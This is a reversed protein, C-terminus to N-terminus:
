RCHVPRMDPEDELQQLRKLVGARAPSQPFRTLFGALEFEVSDQGNCACTGLEVVEELDKISQDTYATYSLPFKRRFTLWDLYLDQIVDESFRVCPAIRSTLRLYSPVLDDGWSRRYLAFFARDAAHGHAVALRDLFEPDPQAYVDYGRSLRLGRLAQSLAAFDSDQLTELWALDGEILMAANQVEEALAFLPELSVPEPTEEVLHLTEIYRTMPEPWGAALAPAAGSLSFLAAAAFVRIIVDAGTACTERRM